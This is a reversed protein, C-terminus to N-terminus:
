PSKATQRLRVCFEAELDLSTPIEDWIVVGGAEAQLEVAIQGDYVLSALWGDDFVELLTQGLETALRSSGAATAWLNEAHPSLGTGLRLNVPWRRLEAVEATTKRGKWGITQGIVRGEIIGGHLRLQFGSNGITGMRSVPEHFEIVSRRRYISRAFNRAGTAAGQSVIQVFLHLKDFGASIPLSATLRLQEAVSSATAVVSFDQNRAILQAESSLGSISAWIRERLPNGAEFPVPDTYTINPFIPLPSIVFTCMAHAIAASAVVEQLSPASPAAPLQLEFCGATTVITINMPQTYGWPVALNLVIPDSLAIPPAPSCNLVAPPGGTTTRQTVTCITAPLLGSNSMRIVLQPGQLGLCPVLPYKWDFVQATLHAPSRSALPPVVSGGLAFYGSPAYFATPDLIGGGPVDLVPTAACTICNSPTPPGCQPLASQIDAQTLAANIQSTGLTAAVVVPVVAGLVGGIVAGIVNGIVGGLVAGVLIGKIEIGISESTSACSLISVGHPQGTATPSTVTPTIDVVLDGLYGLISDHIEVRGEWVGGGKFRVHSGATKLPEGALGGDIASKLTMALWGDSIAVSWLQGAPLTWGTGPGYFTTWDATSDPASLDIALRIGPPPSGYVTWPPVSFGANVFQLGAPALLNFTKAHPLPPGTPQADKFMVNLAATVVLQDNGKHIGLAGLYFLDIEVNGGSPTARVQFVLSQISTATTDLFQTAPLADSQPPVIEGDSFPQPNAALAGQSDLQVLRLSIDVLLLSAVTAVAATSGTSLLVAPSQTRAFFGPISLVTDNPSAGPANAPDNPLAWPFDGRAPQVNLVNLDTFAFTSNDVTVQNNCQIAGNIINHVITTLASASFEFVIDPM